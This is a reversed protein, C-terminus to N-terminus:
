REEDSSRVRDRGAEKAAYLLRDAADLFAEAGGGTYEAVGISLTCRATEGQETTFRIDRFARRVDDAVVRAGAAGTDSLLCAFEEGGIRCSIDTERLRRRLLASLGQLIRDGFAPGFTDNHQKFLDLDLMLLSVPAGYREYRAIHEAVTREFERRNLLGTLTDHRSEHDRQTHEMAVAMVYGLRLLSAQEDRTLEHVDNWVLNMAGAPRRYLVLPVSIIMRNSLRLMEDRVTPHIRPNEAVQRSSVIDRHQVALGTLSNSVPSTMGAQEARESFGRHRVCQDMLSCQRGALIALELQYANCWWANHNLRAAKSLLWAM